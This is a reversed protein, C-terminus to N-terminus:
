SPLAEIQVTKPFLAAMNYIKTNFIGYCETYLFLSCNLITNLLTCDKINVSTVPM